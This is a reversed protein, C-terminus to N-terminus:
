WKKQMTKLQIALKILDMLNDKTFDGIQLFDKGQLQVKMQQVMTSQSM